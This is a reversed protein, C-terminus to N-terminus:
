LKLMSFQARARRAENGPGPGFGPIPGFGVKRLTERSFTSHSNKCTGKHARGLFVIFFPPQAPSIEM